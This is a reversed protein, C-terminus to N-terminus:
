TTPANEEPPREPQEASNTRQYKPILALEEIREVAISKGEDNLHNFSYLLRDQEEKQVESIISFVKALERPDIRKGKYQALDEPDVSLYTGLPGDIVENESHAVLPVKLTKELKLCMEYSPDRRNSEYQRITVEACGVEQALEKQTLGLQNRAARIVKGLGM